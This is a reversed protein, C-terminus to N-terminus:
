YKVFEFYPNYQSLETGSTIWSFIFQSKFFFFTNQQQKKKEKQETKQHSINRVSFHFASTM